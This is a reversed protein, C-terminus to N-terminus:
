QSQAKIWQHAADRWAIQQDHLRGHPDWTHVKIRWHGAELYLHPRGQALMVVRASATTLKQLRGLIM